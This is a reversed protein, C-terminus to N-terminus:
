EEDELSFPVRSAAEFMRFEEASEFGMLGAFFQRRVAAVMKELRAQAKEGSAQQAASLSPFVIKPFKYSPHRDKM